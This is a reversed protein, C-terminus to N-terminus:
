KMNQDSLHGLRNHWLKWKNTVSLALAQNEIQKLEFLNGNKKSQVGEIITTDDLKIKCVEDDFLIKYGKKALKGISLLNTSLTPVYLAEEIKL